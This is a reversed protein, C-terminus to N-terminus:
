IPWPLNNKAAYSKASQWVNPQGKGHDKAIQGWTLATTERLKYYVGGLEPANRRHKPLNNHEAYYDSSQYAAQKTVGLKAAIERWKLGASRMEYYEKGRHFYGDAHVYIKPIPWQQGSELAYQNALAHCYSGTTGLCTGIKNWNMGMRRLEYARQGRSKNAEDILLLAERDPLTGNQNEKLIEQITM